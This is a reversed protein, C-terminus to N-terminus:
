QKKKGRYCQLLLADLCTLSFFFLLLSSFSSSSALLFILLRLCLPEAISPYTENRRRKVKPKAKTIGSGIPGASTSAAAAGAAAPPAAGAETMENPGSGPDRERRGRPQQESTSAKRKSFALPDRAPHSLAVPPLPPFDAIFRLFGLDLLPVLCPHPPSSSPPFLSPLFLLLFSHPLCSSSPSSLTNSPTGSGNSPNTKPFFLSSRNEM